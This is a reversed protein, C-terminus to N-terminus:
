SVYRKKDQEKESGSPKMDGKDGMKNDMDKEAAEKTAETTAGADTSTAAFAANSFTFFV